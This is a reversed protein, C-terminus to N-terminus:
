CEEDNDSEEFTPILYDVISTIPLGVFDTSHGGTENLELEDENEIDTECIIKAASRGNRNILRYFSCNRCM